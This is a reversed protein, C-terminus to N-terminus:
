AARTARIAALASLLDEGRDIAIKPRFRSVEEEV